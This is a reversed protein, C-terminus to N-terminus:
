KEANLWTIGAGEHSEGKRTDQTSLSSEAEPFVFWIKVRGRLVVIQWVLGIYVLGWPLYAFPIIFFLALFFISGMQSKCTNSPTAYLWKVGSSGSSTSPGAGRTGSRWHTMFIRTFQPLSALYSWLRSEPATADKSRATLTQMNIRWWEHFISFLRPNHNKAADESAVCTIRPPPWHISPLGSPSLLSYHSATNDLM